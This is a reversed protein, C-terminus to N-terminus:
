LMAGQAQWIERLLNSFKRLSKRYFGQPTAGFEKSLNPFDKSLDPLEKSLNPFEKSLDVFSKLSIRCSRILLQRIEDYFATVSFDLM